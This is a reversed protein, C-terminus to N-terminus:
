AGMTPDEDRSPGGREKFLSQRLANARKDERSRHEMEDLYCGKCLGMKRARPSEAWVPREDCRRCLPTAAASWRGIRSRRNRISKPTRGPLLSRSLEPASM